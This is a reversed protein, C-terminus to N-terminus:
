RVVKISVALTETPQTLAYFTVTDASTVARYVQAWDTQKASVDGFAVASLDLDLFPTDTSLIGPVTKAATYPGSGTWDTDAITTSYAALTAGGLTALMDGVTADDLVTKAAATVTYTAATGDGTREITGTTSLGAIATLDADLAQADTIGYGSLTTPTSGIQAFTYDGSQATIAGFRGFVSFINPSPTGQM